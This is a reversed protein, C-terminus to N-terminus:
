LKVLTAMYAVAKKKIKLLKNSLIKRRLKRPESSTLLMHSVFREGLIVHM